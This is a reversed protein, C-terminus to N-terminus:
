IMNSLEIPLFISLYISLYISHGFYISLHVSLCLSTSLYIYPLTSRYIKPNYLVHISLYTPQRMHCQAKTSNFYVRACCTKRRPEGPRAPQVVSKPLSVQHRPREYGITSRRLARSDASGVTQIRVNCDSASRLTVSVDDSFTAISSNNDPNYPACVIGRWSFTWSASASLSYASTTCM